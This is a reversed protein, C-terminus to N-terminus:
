SQKRSAMALFRDDILLLIHATRLSAQLIDDLRIGHILEYLSTLMNPMKM